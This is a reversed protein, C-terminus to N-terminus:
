TNSSVWYFSLQSKRDKDHFTIWFPFYVLAALSRFFVSFQKILMENTV